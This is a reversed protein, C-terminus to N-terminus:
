SLRGPLAGVRNWHDGGDSTEWVNRDTDMAWGWEPTLVFIRALVLNEPSASSWTRGGDHTVLTAHNGITL